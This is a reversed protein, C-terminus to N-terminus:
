TPASENRRLVVMLVLVLLFASLAMYPISIFDWVRFYFATCPVSTTCSTGELNPFWQILYHYAAIAAGVAAIVNAYIRIMGERRFAAIALILALPYMAIRQYWCLTCPILNATESLYLSGLTAFGAVAAGFWLEYGRLVDEIQNRIERLRLSRRSGLAVGIYGIVAINAVVTLLAFFLKMTALDLM